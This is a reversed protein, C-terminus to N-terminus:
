LLLSAFPPGIERLAGITRRALGLEESLEPALDEARFGPDLRVGSAETALESHLSCRRLPVSALELESVVAAPFAVGAERLAAYSVPAGEARLLRGVVLAQQREFGYM